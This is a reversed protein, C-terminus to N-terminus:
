LIYYHYHYYYYYYYYAITIIILGLGVDDLAPAGTTRHRGLRRVGELGLM